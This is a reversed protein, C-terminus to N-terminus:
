QNASMGALQALTIWHRPHPRRRGSRVGSAYPLSIGLAAALAGVTLRMLAPQIKTRYVEDTLWTPQVSPDWGREEQMQRKRTAARLTQADPRHSADRAQESTAMLRETSAPITCVACFQRGAKVANGCQRCVRVPRQPPVEYKSIPEPRSERRHRQTLPTPRDGLSVGKRVSSWLTSSVWEAFPGVARGWLPATEALKSAFPAMLRCQGTREEFFWKRPLPQQLLRLVYAEVEPRAVEMVDLALSDRADTDVHLLGLGPDLGLAVLALRTQAELIAFLFNLIANAPNSAVRPSNTLASRRAGFTRWHEPVRVLDNRPFVIPVTRWSAWYIQAAGAEVARAADPSEARHVAERMTTIEDSAVVDHLLDRAVRAQGELKRDVLRRIIPMAIGTHHATAQARRLRADSPGTPGTAALVHGQRDLMLFAARQDSIWRLASLTVFGDSGIVVLRRLKHGVRPLRAVRLQGCLREEVVLHGRSVHVKTGFGFLTIIGNRPVLTETTLTYSNDFSSVQQVTPAAAM